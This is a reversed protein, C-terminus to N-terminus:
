SVGAPLHSLHSQHMSPAYKADMHDELLAIGSDDHNPEQQSTALDMDLNFSVDYSQAYQRSDVSPRSDTLQGHDPQHAFHPFNKSQSENNSNTDGTALMTGNGNGTTMFNQAQNAGFDADMSSYRSENNSGSGENVMEANLSEGNMGPSYSLPTWNPNPPTHSLFGGLSALWQGMEDIFVKTLWWGQFSTGNEVTIERLAASGIANVCHLITRAPVHPFRSPLKILFDAIRDIVTENTVDPSDQSPEAYYTGNPTYVINRLPLLMARVESNLINYVEEHGCSHPLENEIIRKLNVLNKWDAWMQERNQDAMLLVAAAHATSNVRLMQRLLHGFLTAPELRAELVHLPLSSFVKCLHGRLNKEISDLVKLVLAPAVQLTLQSLNHIMKQYMIYDCERIWTSIDPQALLKQVPLTLLGHFSSFLKFFQREKCYRVADILSTCHSRYLAFLNQAADPDTGHPLYPSIDPLVLPVPEEPAMQEPTAFKLEYEYTESIQRSGDPRFQSSYIDTFLRGKSATGTHFSNQSEYAQDQPPFAATDAAPLRPM